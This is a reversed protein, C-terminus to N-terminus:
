ITAIPTVPSGVAGRLYLPPATLLCRHRGLERLRLALPSLRWLEGLHVGLRFLCHQHLPLISSNTATIKAPYHEVAYTDSIIAIIGSDTVWQRLREDSGDLVVGLQDLEASTAVGDNKMIHEAYGTHLLLMDGEQVEIGDALIVEMWEDYGISRRGPGFHRELDVVVAPGQVPTQALHEVGLAHAHSTEVLEAGQRFGSEEVSDTGVIDVGARYGNYYVMETEGTGHVDFRAGVHAFSDWQTSYQLSMLVLDDSLVDDRGEELKSLDTNFNVVTETRQSPRLIPPIRSPNLPSGKPYDLPMSLVFAEGTQVEQMGRLRVEPTLLNMRGRQDDPGWDGWTSGDPRQQWRQTSM